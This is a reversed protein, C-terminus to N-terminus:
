LWRAAGWLKECSAVDKRARGRRPMGRVGKERKALLAGVREM